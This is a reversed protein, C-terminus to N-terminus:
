LSKHYLRQFQRDCGCFLPGPKWTLPDYGITQIEGVYNIRIMRGEDDYYFKAVFPGDDEADSDYNCSIKSVRAGTDVMTTESDDNSGGPLKTEPEDDNSCGPLVLALLAIPALLLKKMKYSAVRLSRLIFLQILCCLTPVEDQEDRAYPM